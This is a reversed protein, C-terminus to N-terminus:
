RNAWYTRIEVKDSYRKWYRELREIFEAKQKEEYDRIFALEEETVKREMISHEWDDPYLARVYRAGDTQGRYQPNKSIYLEIVPHKELWDTFTHLRRINEEIFCQKLQEKTKAIDDATRYEGTEWDEDAYYLHRQPKPTGKDLAIVLGDDTEFYEHYESYKIDSENLRSLDQLKKLM